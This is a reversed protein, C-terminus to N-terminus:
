TSRLGIVVPPNRVTTALQAATEAHLQMLALSRLFASGDKVRPVKPVKHVKHLVVKVVVRCARPAAKAVARRSCKIPGIERSALLDLRPDLGTGAQDGTLPAMRPAM